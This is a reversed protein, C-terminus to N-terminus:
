GCEASRVAPVIGHEIQFYTAFVALAIITSQCYSGMLPESMCMSKFRMAMSWANSTLTGMCNRAHGFAHLRLTANKLLHQTLDFDLAQGAVNGIVDLYINRRQHEALYQAHLIKRM